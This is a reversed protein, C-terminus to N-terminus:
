GRKQKCFYTEAIPSDLIVNAMMHRQKCTECELKTNAKLFNNTPM